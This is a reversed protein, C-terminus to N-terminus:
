RDSIKWQLNTRIKNVPFIKAYKENLFALISEYVIFWSSSQIMSLCAIIQRVMVAKLNYQWIQISKKSATTFICMCLMFLLHQFVNMPQIAKM